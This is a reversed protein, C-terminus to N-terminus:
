ACPCSWRKKKAKYLYIWVDCTPCLSVCNFSGTCFLSPQLKQRVKTKCKKWTYIIYIARQMVPVVGHSL